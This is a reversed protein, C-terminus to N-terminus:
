DTCCMSVFSLNSEQTCLQQFNKCVSHKTKNFLCFTSLLFQILTNFNKVGHWIDINTYTLEFCIDWYSKLIDWLFFILVTFCATMPNSFLGFNGHLLLCEHNCLRMCIQIPFIISLLCKNSVHLKVNICKM